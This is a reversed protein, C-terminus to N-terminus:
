VLTQLSATEVKLEISQEFYISNKKIEGLRAGGSEILSHVNSLFFASIVVIFFAISLSLLLGSWSFEQEMAKKKISNYYKWGDHNVKIGSYGSAYHSSIM